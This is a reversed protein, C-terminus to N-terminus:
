QAERPGTVRQVGPCAVRRLAHKYLSAVAAAEIADWPDDPKSAVKFDMEDSGWAWIALKVALALADTVPAAAIAHRIDGCADSAMGMTTLAKRRDLSQM